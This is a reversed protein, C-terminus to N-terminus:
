KRRKNGDKDEDISSPEFFDYELLGSSAEQCAIRTAKQSHSNDIMPPAGAMLQRARRSALVVYAFQSEPPKTQITM